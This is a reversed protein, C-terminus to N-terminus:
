AGPNYEVWEACAYSYVGATCATDNTKNYIRGPVNGSESWNPETTDAACRALLFGTLEAEVEFTASTGEITLSKWSGADSPSWVWAYIVCGDNQIWDPLDTCTYHGDFEGGGQSQSQSQTSTQSQSASGSASGSASSAESKKSTCAGLGFILAATSLALFIKKM